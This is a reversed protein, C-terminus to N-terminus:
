FLQAHPACAALLSAAALEGCWVPVVQPCLSVAADCCLRATGTGRSGCFGPEGCGWGKRSGEGQGSGDWGEEVQGEVGSGGLQMLLSCAAAAAHQLRRSAFRKERHVRCQLAVNGERWRENGSPAKNELSVASGPRAPSQAAGPIQGRRSGDPPLRPDARHEACGHCGQVGLECGWLWPSLLLWGQEGTSSVGAVNSPESILDQMVALVRFEYWTDQFVLCM